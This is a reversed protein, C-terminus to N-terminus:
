LPATSPRATQFLMTTDSNRLHCGEKRWFSHVSYLFVPLITVSHPMPLTLDLILAPFLLRVMLIQTNAMALFTNLHLARSHRAPQLMSSLPDYTGPGPATPSGFHAFKHTALFSSLKFLLHFQFKNHIHGNQSVRVKREMREDVVKERAQLEKHSSGRRRFPASGTEKFTDSASM